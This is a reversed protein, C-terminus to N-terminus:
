LGPGFYKGETFITLKHLFNQFNGPEEVHGRSNLVFDEGEINCEWMDGDCYQMWTYEKKWHKCYQKLYKYLREQREISPTIEAPYSDIRTIIENHKIDSVLPTRDVLVDMPQWDNYAEYLWKDGKLTLSYKPGFSSTYYFKFKKFKM